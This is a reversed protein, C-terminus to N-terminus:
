IKLDFFDTIDNILMACSLRQSASLPQIMRLFELGRRILLVEEVSLQSIPAYCKNNLNIRKKDRELQGQLPTHLMDSPPPFPFSGKM